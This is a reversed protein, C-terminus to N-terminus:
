RDQEQQRPGDLCLAQLKLVANNTNRRKLHQIKGRRFYVGGWVGWGSNSAYAYDLCDDKVTCSKCIKMGVQPEEFFWETPMGRCAALRFIMSPDPPPAMKQLRRLSRMALGKAFHWHRGVAIMKEVECSSCNMLSAITKEDAGLIWLAYVCSVRLLIRNYDRWNRSLRPSVPVAKNQSLNTDALHDFYRVVATYPLTPM